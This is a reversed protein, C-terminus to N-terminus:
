GKPTFTYLHRFDYEIGPGKERGVSDRKLVMLRNGAVAFTIEDRTTKEYAMFLMLRAKVTHTTVAGLPVGDAGIWFQAVITNDRISVADNPAEEPSILVELLRAPKGQWADMREAKLSGLALAQLLRPAYNLASGVRAPSSSTILNSLGDKKNVGRAASGEDAARKLLARDWRIELASADESVMAAAMHTEPPKGPRSKTEQAEYAGRVPGLGQLASLAAKMDDLGSAAAPGAALLVVLVANKM